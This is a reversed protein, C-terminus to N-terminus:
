LQIGNAAQLDRLADIDSYDPCAFGTSAQKGFLCYKLLYMYQNEAM